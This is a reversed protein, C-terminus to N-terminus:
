QASSSHKKPAAVTVGALKKRKAPSLPLPPPRRHRIPDAEIEAQTLWTGRDGRQVRLRVCATAWTLLWPATERAWRNGRGKWRVLAFRDPDATRQVRWISAGPKPDQVAFGRAGFHGLGELREVLSVPRGQLPVFELLIPLVDPERGLNPAPDLRRVKQSAM